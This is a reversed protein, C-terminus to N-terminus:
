WSRLIWSACSRTGSTLFMWSSTVARSSGAVRTRLTRFALAMAIASVRSVRSGAWISLATRIRALASRISNMPKPPEAATAM